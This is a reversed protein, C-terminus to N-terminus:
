DARDFRGNINNTLENVYRNRYRKWTIYGDEEIDDKCFRRNWADIAQRETDYGTTEVHCAKCKVRWYWEQDPYEIHAASVQQEAGGCFPCPTLAADYEIYDTLMSM